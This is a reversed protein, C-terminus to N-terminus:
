PADGKTSLAARLPEALDSLDNGCMLATDFYNLAAAMAERAVKLAELAATERALAEALYATQSELRAEAEQLQATLRNVELALMEATHEAEKARQIAADLGCTCETKTWDAGWVNCIREHRGYKELDTDSM